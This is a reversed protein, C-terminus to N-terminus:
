NHAKPNRLDIDKQLVWNGKQFKFGNYSFDPGYFRYVGRYFSETPELNDMVIMKLDKDYRMMMSAGASYQYIVRHRTLREEKFVPAGFRLRNNKIILVDLLRTKVFEDYGKYGILTYYTMDKEKTEIIDLYIAGFWKKETLSAREPSKITETADTLPYVMVTGQERSIVAGFFEYKFGEKQINYTSIKVKKDKSILTQMRNLGSLDSDFYSPNKWLNNLRSLIIQNISDKHTDTTQLFLKEFWCKTILDQTSVYTLDANDTIKLHYLGNKEDFEIDLFLKPYNKSPKIQVEDKFQWIVGKGTDNEKVLWEIQLTNAYTIESFAIVEVKGDNSKITSIKNSLAQIDSLSKSEWLLKLEDSIRNLQFKKKNFDKELHMSDLMSVWSVSNQSVVNLSVFALLFIFLRRYMYLNKYIQM